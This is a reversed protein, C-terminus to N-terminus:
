WTTWFVVAAPQGRTILPERGGALSTLEAAPAPKDLLAHPFPAAATRLTTQVLGEAEGAPQDQEAQRAEWGAYLAAGLVLVLAAAGLWRRAM